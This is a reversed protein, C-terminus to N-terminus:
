TEPSSVQMEEPTPPLLLDGERRYMSLYPNSSEDTPLHSAPSRPVASIVAIDERRDVAASPAVGPRLGEREGAGHGPVVSFDLVVEAEYALNEEDVSNININALPLQEGAVALEAITVAHSHSATTAHPNEDEDILLQEAALLQQQEELSRAPKFVAPAPQRYDHGPFRDAYQLLYINHSTEM